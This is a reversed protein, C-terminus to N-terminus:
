PPWARPSVSSNGRRSPKADSKVLVAAAGGSLIEATRGSALAPAVRRLVRGLTTAHVTFTQVAFGAEVALRQFEGYTIDNLDRHRRLDRVKEPNNQLGPYLEFLKPDRRARRAMAGIIVRESFVLNAWPVRLGHKLHLGYKSWISSFIPVLLRGGPRLIRHVARMVAGPDTFHEFANEAIVLDFSAADFTLTAADMEVFDIPLEAGRHRAIKTALERGYEVNAMNLDIGVVRRAGLCALYCTIGGHGCGIELVDLGLLSPMERGLISGFRMKSLFQDLAYAHGYEPTGPAAGLRATRAGTPSPWVSALGDLLVELAGDRVDVWTVTPLGVSPRRLTL